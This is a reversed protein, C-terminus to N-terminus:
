SGSVQPIPQNITAGPGACNPQISYGSILFDMHVATRSLILHKRTQISSFTSTTDMIVFIVTTSLSM